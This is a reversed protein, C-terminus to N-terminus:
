NPMVPRHSNWRFPNQWTKSSPSNENSGRPWTQVVINKREENVGIEEKRPVNRERIYKFTPNVQQLLPAKNNINVNFPSVLIFM